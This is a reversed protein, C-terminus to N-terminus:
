IEENSIEVNGDGGKSQVYTSKKASLAEVFGSGCSSLVREACLAKRPTDHTSWTLPLVDKIM